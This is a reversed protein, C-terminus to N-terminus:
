KTTKPTADIVARWAPALKEPLSALRALLDRRIGVAETESVQQFGHFGSELSRLARAIDERQKADAAHLRKVEAIKWRRFAATSHEIHRMRGHPSEADAPCTTTYGNAYRKVGYRSGDINEYVSITEPNGHTGSDTLVLVPKELDSVIQQLIANERTMSPTATANM